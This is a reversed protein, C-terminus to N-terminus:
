ESLLEIVEDDKLEIVGEEVKQDSIFENVEEGTSRANPEEFIEKSADESAENPVLLSM